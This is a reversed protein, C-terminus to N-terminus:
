EGLHITAQGFETEVVVPDAAYVATRDDQSCTAQCVTEHEVVCENGEPDLVVTQHSTRVEVRLTKRM